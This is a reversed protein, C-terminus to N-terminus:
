HLCVYWDKVKDKTNIAGQNLFTQRGGFWIFIGRRNKESAENHKEEVSIDIIWGLYTKPYTLSLLWSEMKEVHITQQALVM